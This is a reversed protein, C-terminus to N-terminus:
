SALGLIKAIDAFFPALDRIIPFTYWANMTDILVLGVISSCCCFVALGACGIAVWRMTSRPEEERVAYPDYDYGGPAQPTGPYGQAGYGAAQQNGYGYDQQPTGPQATGPAYYGAQGPQPSQGYGPTQPQQGYGPQGYAPAQPQQGYGPQGYAPAQPQQGYGPQGYAPAQSPQGYSVPAQPAATPPAAPEVVGGPRIREFGLTVTEGLGIMDGNNLPRTGTIRQGNIFTGNTSGLDELVFGDATRAFRM